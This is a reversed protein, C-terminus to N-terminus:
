AAPDLVLVAVSNAEIDITGNGLRQPASDPTATDIAWTWARGPPAEPVTIKAAGGANFVAFIAIEMAAYHPTGSATRLEVCVRRLDPNLWDANEMPTGDDRRWFLDEVGDIARERSHLFLKQRLIPHAKRFSIMKRTFREFAPDANGWDIWGIPNDQCYANNNGMQSNGLEDGGLIMPTGQSLLLTALMNRKRRARAAIIADDETPGEVGLNDSFNEGHGDRGGEGNAENHRTAYSVVDELTFGDHATLMNLSSTAPRGSHDFQLASGTIRSALDPGRGPDGRWFRRVGDRFKDNWSCFPPSFAGLQYGGPGIDWPEAILKVTSLVPDQRIAQFVAADRDFGNPTRGLSVALDFRFGDVGMVEVWYRLSDLILRMVMPHETRLTNGTGTDNVYYRPDRELRYYSLNDLGRFALTPGTENGEGTHNYVVDLIVEIGAGHFRDVMRRFEGIDVGSMYRPEPAFFGLSQYGWYNTLKKEILFRDNLFAHVPLLEIATIGLKTLHDLIPDTALAAYSGPATVAPHQMTMGRVHAEYVITDKLPISPRRPEPFTLPAEVICRPMMPASDRPDFSLDAAAAGVTYGMLADDWVPHGTIRRAYPDLLLKNPNFRHGHDPRYPGYARYGYRQGPKIGAVHGHWVDGEREPLDIRTEFGDSDFLCLTMRTAHTSFVAFNVGGEDPTAGLPTPRGATVAARTTM